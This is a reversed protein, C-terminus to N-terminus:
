LLHKQLVLRPLTQHPYVQSPQALVLTVALIGDGRTGARAPHRAM